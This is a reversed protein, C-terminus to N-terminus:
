GGHKIGERNENLIIWARKNIDDKYFQASPLKEWDGSIHDSPNDNGNQALIAAELLMEESVDKIGSEDYGTAFCYVFAMFDDPLWFNIYMEERLAYDKLEKRQAANNVGHIDELISSVEKRKSDILDKQQSEFMLFLDDFTPWVLSQKIIKYQIEYSDCIEKITIKKDKKIIKDKFTEIFSFNGSAKMQASNLKKAKISLEKGAFPAKLVPFAYSEALDIIKIEIPSRRNKISFYYFIAGSTILVGSAILIFFNVSM